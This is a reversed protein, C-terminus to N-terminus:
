LCLVLVALGCAGDDDVAVREGLLIQLLSLELGVVRNCLESDGALYHGAGDCRKAQLCELIASHVVLAYQAALVHKCKTKNAPYIVAVERKGLVHEAGLEGLLGLNGLCVDLYQTGSIVHSVVGM